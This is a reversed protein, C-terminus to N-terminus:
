RGNPLASGQPLYRLSFVLERHCGPANPADLTGARAQFPEEDVSTRVFAERIIGINCALADLYLARETGDLDVVGAGDQVWIEVGTAASLDALWDGYAAPPVFGTFYSSAAIPADLARALRGLQQQLADRRAARELGRDPLELPLYWGSFGPHESFEAWQRAQELSLQLWQNLREDWAGGTAELAAFWDSRGHLGLRVKLGSALAANVVGALWGDVGGFDEDDYRTWQLVLEDHGARQLEAFTQQWAADTLQADGNQPQYFVSAASAGTSTLVILAMLVCTGTTIRSSFSNM